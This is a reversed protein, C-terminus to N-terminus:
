YATLNSGIASLWWASAALSVVLMAAGHAQRDKTMLIIGCVIGAIPILFAGVWGLAIVLTPEDDVSQVGNMPAVQGTWTAGDWFRVTQPMEPHPYWGPPPGSVKESM